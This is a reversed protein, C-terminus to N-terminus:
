STTGSSTRSNNATDGKSPRRKRERQRRQRNVRDSEESNEDDNVDIDDKEVGNLKYGRGRLKGRTNKTDGTVIEGSQDIEESTQGDNVDVDDENEESTQDDNVDIDDEEVSNLRYSRDDESNEEDNVDIDDKEASNLIYGLSRGARRYGGRNGGKYWRQWYRLILRDSEESNEDDNVDVDDKEVSNLRYSRGGLRGRTNKSDGTM